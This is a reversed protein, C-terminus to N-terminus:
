VLLAFKGPYAYLISQGDPSIDYALEEPPFYHTNTRKHHVCGGVEWFCTLLACCFLGWAYRRQKTTM